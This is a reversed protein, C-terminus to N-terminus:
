RENPILPLHAVKDKSRSAAALMPDGAIVSARSNIQGCSGAQGALVMTKTPDLLLRELHRM